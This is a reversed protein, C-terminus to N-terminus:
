WCWQWGSDLLQLSFFSVRGQSFCPGMHLETVQVLLQGCVCLSILILCFYAKSSLHHIQEPKMAWCYKKFLFWAGSWVWGEGAGGKRKGRRRGRLQWRWSLGLPLGKGQAWPWLSRFDQLDRHHHARQALPQMQVHVGKRIPLFRVQFM